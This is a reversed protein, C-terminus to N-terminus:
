GIEFSRGPIENVFEAPSEEYRDQWNYLIAREQTDYLVIWLLVMHAVENEFHYVTGDLYDQAENVLHFSAASKWRFVLSNTTGEEVKWVVSYRSDTL